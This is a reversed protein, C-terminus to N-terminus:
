PPTNANAVYASATRGTTFKTATNPDTFSFGLPGAGIAGAVTDGVASAETLTQPGVAFTFLNTNGSENGLYTFTATGLGLSALTGQVGSSLVGTVGAPQGDYGSFTKPTSGTVSLQASASGALCVLALTSLIRKM